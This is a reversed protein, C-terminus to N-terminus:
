AGEGQQKNKVFTLNRFYLRILMCLMLPLFALHYQQPIVWWGVIAIVILVSIISFYKKVYAPTEKKFLQWGVFLNLPFLWLMNWNAWCAQHDTGLWMFLFLSGALGSITFLLGDFIRAGLSNNKFLSLLLALVLLFSTWFLPLTYWPPNVTILPFGLITNKEQLAPGDPMTSSRMNNKLYDPLYMQYRFDALADSPQGLILDIGFDSWPKEKLYYDLMQRFTIDSSYNDVGGLEGGKTKEFVDRIRSSCNDFFFDYAYYRNEPRYNEELIRIMEKAQEDSLNFRNEIVDRKYYEYERLFGRFSQKGLKYDLKGRVFKVYFNPTDFDFIGYNYVEDKRSQRDVVRLASHGFTSYLADGPACTLLSVVYRSSDAQSHGLQATLLFLMFFLGRM